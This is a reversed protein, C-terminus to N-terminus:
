RARRSEWERRMLRARQHALPSPYTASACPSKQMNMPPVGYAERTAVRVEDNFAETSVALAFGTSSTPSTLKSRALKKIPDSRRSCSASPPGPQWSARGDWAAAYSWFHQLDAERMYVKVSRLNCGLLERLRGRQKGSSPASAGPARGARRGAALRTSPKARSRWSTFATSSTSLAEM